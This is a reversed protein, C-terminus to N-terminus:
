KAYYKNKVKDTATRRQAPSLAMPAAAVQPNCSTGDILKHTWQLSVNQQDDVDVKFVSWNKTLNEFDSPLAIAHSIDFIKTEGNWKVKVRAETRDWRTDGTYYDIYYEYCGPLSFTTATLVEPGFGDTDDVDLNALFGDSSLKRNNFYVEGAPTVLHTDLDPPLEGWTLEVELAAPILTVDDVTGNTSEWELAATLGNSFFYLALNSNIRVPISYFGNADTVAQTQGIYDTGESRVEVGAVPNGFQDLVRGNLTTTKLPQDANWTSFHSVEGVYVLEGTDADTMLSATGEEVWYGTKPDFYYLPIETPANTETYLSAVPIRIVATQGGALNLEEGEANSLNVSVAGFSELYDSEGNVPQTQYDGPMLSSDSSPDIVTIAAKATGEALNGQSDVLSNATLELYAFNTDPDRLVTNAATDFEDSFHVPLLEIDIDSLTQDEGINVLVSYEGYGEAIARAVVRNGSIPKKVTYNGQADSEALSQNDELTLSIRAGEIPEGTYYNTVSGSVTASTGSSSDSSSDSSSCGNILLLASIFTLWVFLHRPQPKM